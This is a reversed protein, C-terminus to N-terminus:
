SEGLSVVEWGSRGDEEETVGNMALAPRLESMFALLSRLALELQM